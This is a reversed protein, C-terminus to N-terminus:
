RRKISFIEIVPEEYPHVSRIARAVKDVDEDDCETELRVEPEFSRVGPEGVYPSADADPIWTGTIDTLSACGSYKGIRGAGCAYLVELVANECGKPVYTVLKVM